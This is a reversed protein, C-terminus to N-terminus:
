PELVSKIEEDDKSDERQQNIIENGQELVKDTDFDKNPTLMFDKHDIDEAGQRPDPPSQNDRIFSHLITIRSGNYIFAPNVYYIISSSDSRALMEANLLDVLARYYTSDSCKMLSTMESPVLYIQLSDKGLMKLIMTFLLAGKKSLEHFMMLSGVYVKVFQENDVVREHGLLLDGERIIEGHKDTVTAGGKRVFKTERKRNDVLMRRAFTDTYPNSPFKSFDYISGHKMISEKM